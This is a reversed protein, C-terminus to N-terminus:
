RPNDIVIVPAHTTTIYQFQQMNSTVGTIQLALGVVGLLVSVTAAAYMVVVTDGYDYRVRRWWSRFVM